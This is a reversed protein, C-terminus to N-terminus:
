PFTSGDPFIILSSMENESSSNIPYFEPSYIEFRIQFANIKKQNPFEKCNHYFVEKKAEELFPRFKKVFRLIEKGPSFGVLENRYSVDELREHFWDFLNEINKWHTIGNDRMVLSWLSPIINKPKAPAGKSKKFANLSAKLINIEGGISEEIEYIKEKPLLPNKIKKMALRHKNLDLALKKLRKVGDSVIEYDSVEQKRILQIDWFKSTPEKRLVIALSHAFDFLDFGYKQILFKNAESTDFYKDFIKYRYGM